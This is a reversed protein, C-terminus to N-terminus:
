AVSGCLHISCKRLLTRLKKSAKVVRWDYTPDALYVLYIAHKISSTNMVHEVASM